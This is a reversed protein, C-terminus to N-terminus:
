NSIGLISRPDEQLELYALACDQPMEWCGLQAKTKQLSSPFCSLVWGKGLCFWVFCTRVSFRTGTSGLLGRLLSATVGLDAQHYASNEKMEPGERHFGWRGVLRLRLPASLQLQPLARDKFEVLSQSFPSGLFAFHAWSGGGWSNKSSEAQVETWFM